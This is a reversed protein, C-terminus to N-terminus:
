CTESLCTGRVAPPSPCQAMGQGTTPDNGVVAACVAPGKSLPGKSCYLDPMLARHIDWSPKPEQLVVMHLLIAAEIDSGQCSFHFRGMRTARLTAGPLLGESVLLGVDSVLQLVEPLVQCKQTKTEGGTLHPGYPQNASQQSSSSSTHHSHRASCSRQSQCCEM